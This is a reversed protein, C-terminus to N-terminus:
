DEKKPPATDSQLYAVAEEIKKLREAIENLVSDIRDIEQATAFGGLMKAKQYETAMKLGKRLNYLKYFIETLDDWILKEKAVKEKALIKSVM